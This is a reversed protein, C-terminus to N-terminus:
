MVRVVNAVRYAATMKGNNKTTAATPGSGVRCAPRGGPRRPQNTTSPSTPPTFLTTCRGCAPRGSRSPSSRRAAAATVQDHHAGVLETRRRVPTRGDDTACTSRGSTRSARIADVPAVVLLAVCLGVRLREGRHRPRARRTPRAMRDPEDVLPSYLVSSPCHSANVVSSPVSSPLPVGSTASFPSLKKSCAADNAEGTRSRGSRARRAKARSAHAPKVYHRSAASRSRSTAQPPSVPSVGPFSPSRSASSAASWGAEVDGLM